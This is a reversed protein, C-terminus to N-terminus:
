ALSRGTDSVLAGYVSVCAPVPDAQGRRGRQPRPAGALFVAACGIGVCCFQVRYYHWCRQRYLM